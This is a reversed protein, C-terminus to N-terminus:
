RRGTECRPIGFLDRAADRVEATVSYGFEEPHLFRNAFRELAAIREQAPSRTGQLVTHWFAGADSCADLHDVCGEDMARRMACELDAIRAELKPVLVRQSFLPEQMEKLRAVEAHLRDVESYYCGLDNRLRAVEAELEVIRADSKATVEDLTRNFSELTIHLNGDALREDLAAIRTRLPADETTMCGPCTGQYDANFMDGCACTAAEKLRAVEAQLAVIQNHMEIHARSAEKATETM